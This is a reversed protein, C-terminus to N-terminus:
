APTVDRISYGFEEDAAGADPDVWVSAPYDQGEPWTVVVQAAHETNAAAIVDNVTLRQWDAAPDGAAHGWGRHAYVAEVVKGDRVTVTVPSGRDACFCTTRLTYTYDAVDYSPWPAATPHSEPTRDSSPAATSGASGCGAVLVAVGVALAPVLPTKMATRRGAPGLLERSLSVTGNWSCHSFSPM